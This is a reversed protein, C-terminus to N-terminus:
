EAEQRLVLETRVVAGDQPHPPASLHWDNALGKLTWTGILEVYERYLGTYSAHLAHDPSDRGDLVYLWDLLDQRNQDAQVAQCTQSNFPM